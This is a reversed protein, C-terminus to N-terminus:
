GTKAYKRARGWSADVYPYEPSAKSIEGAVQTYQGWIGSCRPRKM